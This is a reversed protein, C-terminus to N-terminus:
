GNSDVGGNGIYLDGGVAKPFINSGLHVGYQAINNLASLVLIKERIIM